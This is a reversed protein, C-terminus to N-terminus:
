LSRPALSYEGIRRKIESLFKRYFADQRIFHFRLQKTQDKSLLDLAYEQLIVAEMRNEEIRAIEEYLLFAVTSHEEFLEVMYSACIASRTTLIYASLEGDWFKEFCLISQAIEDLNDSLMSLLHPNLDTVMCERFGPKLM